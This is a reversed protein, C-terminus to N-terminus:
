RLEKSISEWLRYFVCTFVEKNYWELVWYHTLTGYKNTASKREGRPYIGGSSWKSSSTMDAETELAM